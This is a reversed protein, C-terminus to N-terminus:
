SKDLCKLIKINLEEREFIKGLSILHNVIHTFRKQVDLITEGKLIKFMEYEQILAHKRERKVDITDEHTVKSFEYSNLASTIINNSICDYQDKKNEIKTWQSWPKEIFVDDKELKPVFPGNTIADWIGRNISEVFIKIRVKWFQYNLGCFLPSRNIYAGEDFPLNEVM